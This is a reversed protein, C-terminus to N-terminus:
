FIETDLTNSNMQSVKPLGSKAIVFDTHSFDMKSWVYSM